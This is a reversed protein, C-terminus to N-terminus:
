SKKKSADRKKENVGFNCSFKKKRADRKKKNVSFNCSFKKKRADRKKKNVSLSSAISCARSEEREENKIILTSPDMQPEGTFMVTEEGSTQEQPHSNLKHKLAAAHQLSQKFHDHYSREESVYDVARSRRTLEDAATSISRVLNTLYDPHIAAESLAKEAETLYIDLVQQQQTCYEAWRAPYNEEAYKHGCVDADVLLAPAEAAHESSESFKLANELDISTRDEEQLQSM